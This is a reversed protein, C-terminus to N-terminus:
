EEDEKRSKKVLGVGTIGMLAAMGAFVKHLGSMGTQPLTDYASEANTLVDYNTVLAKQEDTLTNYASRAAIIKNESANSKDVKGIANIKEIVKEAAAKEAAEKASKEAKAQAAEAAAIKAAADSQAKAAEEAAKKQAEAEAEAAAKEELATYLKEAYGLAAANKVLKQQDATLADYATRATGIKAKVADTLEIDGIANIKAEVDSVLLYLYEQEAATLAPYNSVLAKQAETMLADYAARAADILAKSEDTLAVTGIANIKEIVADAALHDAVAKEAAALKDTSAKGVKAKQAETLNTYAERAADVAEKDASKIDEAAPLANIMDTVAKAALTDDIEKVAAKATTVANNVATIAQAVQEETVNDNEAVTKADNIASILALAPDAYM